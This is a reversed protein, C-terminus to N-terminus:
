NPNQFIVVETAGLGYKQYSADYYEVPYKKFLYVLEAKLVGEGVGHIFVIKSIRKQIAYELKRKATELQITLMDYNDLGNTSNVLQNIHLDVEFIVENKAKSFNQSKKKPKEAIKDQLFQNNIENYATLEHQNEDLKVLESPLYNFLMGTDDKILIGTSNISAIRGKVVDDLVAVFDGVVFNM